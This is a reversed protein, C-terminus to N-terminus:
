FFITIQLFFFVSKLISFIAEASVQDRLDVPEENPLLYKIIADSSFIQTGNEFDLLPFHAVKFRTADTIKFNSIIFNNLKARPIFRVIHFFLLM